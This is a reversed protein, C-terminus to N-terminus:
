GPTPRPTDTPTPVPTNTPPVPTNTPPVPTNTPRPTDTPRSTPPPTPARAVWRFFRAESPPSVAGIADKEKGKVVVVRWYYDGPYYGAGVDWWNDKTWYHGTPEEGEKWLQVEYWHEAALQDRPVWLLTVLQHQDFGLITNPQPELLLPAQYVQPLAVTPKVTPTSSSTAPTSTPGAAPTPTPSPTMLALTLTPTATHTPTATETPTATGTPTPTTTPTSTNTPTPTDTPLPKIVHIQKNELEAWAQWGAELFREDEATSVRLSQGAELLIYPVTEDLWLQFISDAGPDSVVFNLTEVTFSETVSVYVAFLQESSAAAVIIRGELLRFLPRPEPPLTQMLELVTGPELRMTTGDPLRLEAAEVEEQLVRLQDGYFLSFRGHFETWGAGRAPKAWAKGSLLEVEADNIRPTPTPTSLLQCGGSMLLSLAMLALWLCRLSIFQRSAGCGKM